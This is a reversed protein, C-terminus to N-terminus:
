AARRIRSALTDAVTRAVDAPDEVVHEHLFRLTVVGERAAANDRDRDNRMAQLRAHWRRGDVEVVVLEDDYFGDVTCATPHRGPFPAQWRPRRVQHRDLCSLFTRELASQPVPEGALEDIIGAIVHLKPKGPRAVDALVRSVRALSVRGQAVLDQLAVSIQEPTAAVALDVVTRAPTTIPLGRITGLHRPLVDNIQHVMAPVEPLHTPHRTTLVVPSGEFGTFRLADAAGEHSLWAREQAALHAIWRDRDQHSPSGAILYVGSRLRVWRRARVRHRIQGHTARLALAQQRSIVGAQRTALAAIRSDIDTM